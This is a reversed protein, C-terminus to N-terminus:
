KEWFDYKINFFFFFCALTLYLDTHQQKSASFFFSILVRYQRDRVM